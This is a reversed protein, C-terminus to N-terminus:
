HGCGVGYVMRVYTCGTTSTHTPKSTANLGKEGIEFGRTRGKKKEELAGDGRNAAGHLREALFPWPLRRVVV